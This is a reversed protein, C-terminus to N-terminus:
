IANCNIFTTGPACLVPEYECTFGNGLCGVAICQQTSGDTCDDACYGCSLPAAASAPAATLAVGTIVTLCVLQLKRHVTM